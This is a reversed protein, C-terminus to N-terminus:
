RFVQAVNFLQEQVLEFCAANAVYGAITHRRGFDGYHLDLLHSPGFEDIVAGNGVLKSDGVGNGILDDVDLDGDSIEIHEARIHGAGNDDPLDLSWVPWYQHSARRVPCYWRPEERQSPHM